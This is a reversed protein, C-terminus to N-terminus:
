KISVISSRISLISFLCPIEYFIDINNCYLALPIEDHGAAM